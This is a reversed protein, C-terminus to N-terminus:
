KNLIQGHETEHTVLFRKEAEECDQHAARDYVAVGVSLLLLVALELFLAGVVPPLLFGSKATFSDLTTSVSNQRGDSPSHVKFPGLVMKHVLGPDNEVSRRRRSPNCVSDCCNCVNSQSNGLLQWRNTDSFYSCAKRLETVTNTDWVVIKFHLYIEDSDEVFKMAPFTLRITDLPFHEVFKSAAVKGDVFCGHNTILSYIPGSNSIDPTPTVICEDVFIRLPMHNTSDVSLELSILSGLSFDKTPTTDSFDDNMLKAFFNLLGKAYVPVVVTTEISTPTMSRNLVCGIHKTFPQSFQNAGINTPQYVLDVFYKVINGFMKSFGCDYLHYEFVFFGSLASTSSVPCKGLTLSGPDLKMGVGFPDSKVSVSVFTNNCAYFVTRDPAAQGALSTVWSLWLVLVAWVEM